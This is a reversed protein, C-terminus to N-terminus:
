IEKINLYCRLVIKMPHERAPVICAFVTKKSTSKKPHILNKATVGFFLISMEGLLKLNPM